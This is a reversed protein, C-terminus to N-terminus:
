LDKRMLIWYSAGIYFLMWVLAIVAEKLSVYDQIEWFFYRPFPIHILNHIAEIPLLPAIFKSWAPLKPYYVLEPYYLLQAVLPEIMFTYMFLGVIVLGARRILLTLLLALLLYIFVDLFYAFLFTLSSFLYPMSDPHAYILGTILGILFLLLTATLALAQLFLIKSLLWEKKSLGDIINQRIIRYNFENSVTIIVLFAPFIKFFSAVYTLNQWIDPFDYLPILTPNFGRFDAGQNKLFEMLFMGSSCIVTTLLAYLGM